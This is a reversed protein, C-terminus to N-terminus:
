EMCVRPVPPDMLHTCYINIEDSYGGGMALLGHATSYLYVASPCRTLTDVRVPCAM